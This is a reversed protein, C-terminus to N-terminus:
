RWFRYLNWRVFMSAHLVCIWNCPILFSAHAQAVKIVKVYYQSVQSINIM